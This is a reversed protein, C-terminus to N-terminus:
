AAASREQRDALHAPRVCGLVNCTRKVDGDPWHGRDVYFALRNPTVYGETTNAGKAGTWLLHEGDQQTSAEWAEAPTRVPGRTNPTGVYEDISIPRVARRRLQRRETESLGGWVGHEEGTELAWQLCSAVASCRRCFDKAEEIYLRVNPPFMADPDERCPAKVLWDTPRSATDPVAGTYHTM